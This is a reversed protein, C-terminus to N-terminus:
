SSKFNWHQIFIMDKLTHSLYKTPFKLPYRQFEVCFIKGMCQVIHIENVYSFKLARLNLLEYTNKFRGGSINAETLQYMLGQLAAIQIDSESIVLDIGNNNNHRRADCTWQYGPLNSMLRVGEHWISTYNVDIWPGNSNSYDLAKAIHTSMIINVIYLCGDKGEMFFQKLYRHWCHHCIDYLVFINEYKWFLQSCPNVLCNLEMIRVSPLRNICLVWIGRIESIGRSAIGQILQVSEHVCRYSYRHDGPRVECTVTLDLCVLRRAGFM